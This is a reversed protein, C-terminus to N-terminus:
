DMSNKERSCNGDRSSTVTITHDAYPLKAPDLQRRVGGEISQHLAVGAIFFALRAPMVEFALTLRQDATGRTAIKLQASERM